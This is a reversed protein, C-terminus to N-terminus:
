PMYSQRTRSTLERVSFGMDQLREVVNKPGAMHLVGIAAFVGDQKEYAHAIRNAIVANRQEFLRSLEGKNQICDCWTYYRKIEPFNGREWASTLRILQERAEGNELQALDEDLSKLSDRRLARRQEESTELEVIKKGTVRAYGILASDISFDPYLGLDRASSLTLMNIKSTLDGEFNEEDLCARRFQESVRLDRSNDEPAMTPADLSMNMRAALTPDTVDLEVALVQSAALAMKITPGPFDWELKAVHVTGYLFSRRGDKSIEWLLGRDPHTIKALKNLTETSPTALEMCKPTSTSAM